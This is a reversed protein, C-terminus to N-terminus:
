PKRDIAAAEKRGRRMEEIRGNRFRFLCYMGRASTAMMMPLWDSQGVM